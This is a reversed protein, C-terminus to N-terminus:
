AADLHLLEKVSDLLDNPDFPKNVAADAGLQRQAAQAGYASCVIVPGKFGTGRALEYFVRGNMRPMQLDLVVLDPEAEALVSLAQEGDAAQTVEIGESQLLISMFRTNAPDDDVILVNTM